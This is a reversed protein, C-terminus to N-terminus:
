SLGDQVTLRAREDGHSGELRMPRGRAWIREVCVADWGEPLVVPRECWEAPEGSHLRLGTLGYLCSMLFGGLNATFPGAVVHDPFYTPSYEATITFPEVVFDGYGWEFLALSRARDGLRAAYAGLMASLMPQGAYRDAHRLYFDLTSRETQPDTPYGLPFLGAAADPTSGQPEDPRYGDHNLIVGTEPDTPVVLEDAIESWCERFPLRL